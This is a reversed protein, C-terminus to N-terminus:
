KEWEKLHKWLVYLARQAGFEKVSSRSGPYVQRDVLYGRKDSLGVYVTGIPERETGGEPGAFGTTALGIDAGALRRIGEAMSRAVEENVAQDRLAAESPVGLCSVKIKPSYAVMGAIFHRSIGPVGTLRHCVLGGTVSEAVALTMGRKRLLDAVAEELTEEDQGYIYEGLRRRVEEEVKSLMLQAERTSSGKAAIRVRVEGVGVYPACSPNASEMLDKLVENVKAEPIGVLKLNVSLIPQLGEYTKCILPLVQTDFMPRMERPPGPLIAALKGDFLVAQGPATGERNPFFLGGEIIYAQKKDAESGARGRKRLREEILAWAAENFVLRRGLSAALCQATLDDDTPGLGGTAIIIDARGIAERFAAELRAPNDGVTVRRFVDVGIDKLRASIYQANTDTIEGLLLETGVSLIEAHM